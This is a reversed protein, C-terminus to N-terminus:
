MERRPPFCRYVARASDLSAQSDTWFVLAIDRPCSSQLDADCPWSRHSVQLVECEHLCSPVCLNYCEECLPKLNACPPQVMSVATSHGTHYVSASSQKLNCHMQFVLARRPWQRVADPFTRLVIYSVIVYRLYEVRETEFVHLKSSM